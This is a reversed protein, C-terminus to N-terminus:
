VNVVELGFLPLFFTILYTPQSLVSQKIIPIEVPNQNITTVLMLTPDKKVKIIGGKITRFNVFIRVSFISIKFLTLHFPFRM